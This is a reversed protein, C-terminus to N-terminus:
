RSDAVQGLQWLSLEVAGVFPLFMMWFRADWPGLGTDAMLGVLAFLYIMPQVSRIRRITQRALSRRAQRREAQALMAGIFMPRYETITKMM